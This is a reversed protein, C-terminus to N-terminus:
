EDREIREPAYTQGVVLQEAANFSANATQSVTWRAHGDAAIVRVYIDIAEEGEVTCTTRFSGTRGSM